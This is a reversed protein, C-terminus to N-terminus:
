FNLSARDIRQTRASCVRSWTACSLRIISPYRRSAVNLFRAHWDKLPPLRSRGSRTAYSTFYVDLPGYTELYHTAYSKYSYPKYKYQEPSMYYPTGISTSALDVSEDLVKSIGFDGLKVIGNSLFINPTKLDRHLIRKDHMYFIAFAIQVAWNLIQKEDIKSGKSHEIIQSVDGGECYQMVINLCDEKDIFSDRYSVINIHKFEQM